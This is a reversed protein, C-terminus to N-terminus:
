SAQQEYMKGQEPKRRVRYEIRRRRHAPPMDIQFCSVTAQQSLTHQRERSRTVLATSKGIQRQSSTVGIREALLLLAAGVALTREM